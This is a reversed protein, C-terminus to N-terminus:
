SHLCPIDPLKNIETYQVKGSFDKVTSVTVTKNNTPTQHANDQKTTFKPANSEASKLFERMPVDSLSVFSIDESLEFNEMMHDIDDKTSLLLGNERRSRHLYAIKIINVFKGFKGHLDNNSTSKVFHLTEEIKNSTLLCTPLPISSPDLVKPHSEHYPNGAKQLM